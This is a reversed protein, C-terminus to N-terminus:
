KAKTRQAAKKFEKKQYEKTEIAIKKGKCVVDYFKCKVENAYVTSNFSLSVFTLLLIISKM